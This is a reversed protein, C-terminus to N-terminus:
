GTVMEGAVTFFLESSREQRRLTAHDVQDGRQHNARESGGSGALFTDRNILFLPNRQKRKVVGGASCFPRIVDPPGSTRTRFARPEADFTTENATQTEM